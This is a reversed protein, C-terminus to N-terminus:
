SKPSPFASNLLLIFKASNILMVYNSFQIIPLWSVQIEIWLSLSKVLPLQKAKSFGRYFSLIFDNKCNM